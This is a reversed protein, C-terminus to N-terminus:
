WCDELSASGSIMREGTENVSLTGCATDNEKQRHIPAAALTYHTADAITLHMEYHSRLNSIDVPLQAISAGEYTQNDILYNELSVSLQSLVSEAHLRNARSLYQFYSPLSIAALISIIALTIIVEILSFGKM